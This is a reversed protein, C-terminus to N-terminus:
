LIPSVLRFIVEFSRRAVSTPPLGEPASALLEHMWSRLVAVDHPSYLLSMVEFNLLLSRADFNASGLFALDDAIIAKAHIMAPHLHVHCGCQVLERLSAGRALDAFVQNSRAPVVIRVDVGRRAAIALAESLSPTPLFYPTVVWLRSYASHIAFILADHLPDEPVDPGAPVFQVKSGGSTKTVPIATSSEQRGGAMAWDSRFIEDCAAVAPGALLYSLDLWRDPLADPGLYEEGVNRGGSWVRAGDAIVMKRHNRLNLHDGTPYHLLPSYLRVQAGAARLDRLASRPRFFSGVADLVVRVDVGARAREQLAACFARGTADNGLIYLTVSLSTAATEVLHMLASWAQDASALLEFRNDQSAPRLGYRLLLQEIQAAGPALDQPKGAILTQASHSRQRKRFGMVAFLPVAVYPVLVLFLLWALTAQPARRQRLIMIVSLAVLFGIAVVLM